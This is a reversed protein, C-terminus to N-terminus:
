ELGVARAGIGRTPASARRRSGSLWPPRLALPRDGAVAGEDNVCPPTEMVPNLGLGSFALESLHTKGLCVLGMATAAQLVEADRSPVRDKLMASGAETVIGATDFLDKWSVPVGDLISRRLGLRAREAAARAEARAREHTVRAYIRDRFPHADIKDLFAETLAVPDIEGAEIGRGLAVAEMGTWDTM